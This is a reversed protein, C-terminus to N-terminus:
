REPGHERASPPGAQDDTDGDTAPPGVAGIADLYELHRAVVEAVDQDQVDLDNVDAGGIVYAVEDVEELFTPLAIDQRRDTVDAPQLGLQHLRGMHIRLLQRVEGHTLRAQSADPIADAVYAIADDIDYIARPAVGDLRHAERGITAAAIAFVVLAGVILPGAAL